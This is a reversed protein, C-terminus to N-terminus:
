NPVSLKIEPQIITGDEDYIVRKLIREGEKITFIYRGIGVMLTRGNRSHHLKYIRTGYLESSFLVRYGNRTLDVLEKVGDVQAKTMFDEDFETM